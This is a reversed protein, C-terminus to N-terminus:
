LCVGSRRFNMLTEFTVPQVENQIQWTLQDGMKSFGVVLKRAVVVGWHRNKFWAGLTDRDSGNGSGQTWPIPNGHVPELKPEPESSSIGTDTTFKM